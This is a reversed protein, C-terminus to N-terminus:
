DCRNPLHRRILTEQNRSLGDCTQNLTTLTDAIAQIAKELKSVRARLATLELGTTDVKNDEDGTASM